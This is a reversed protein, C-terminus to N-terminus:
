TTFLFNLFLFHRIKQQVRRYHFALNITSLLESNRRQQVILRIMEKLQAGM